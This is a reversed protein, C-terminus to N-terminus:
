QIPLRWAPTFLREKPNRPNEVFALIRRTYLETLRKSRAAPSVDALFDLSTLDESTLPACEQARADAFRIILETQRTIQGLIVVSSYENWNQVITTISTTSEVTGEVIGVAALGLNSFARAFTYAPEPSKVRYAPYRQELSNRQAVDRMLQPGVEEAVSLTVARVRAFDLCLLRQVPQESLWSRMDNALPAGLYKRMDLIDLESDKSIARARDLM